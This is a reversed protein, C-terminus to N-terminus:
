ERFAESVIKVRAILKESKGPLNMAHLLRNWLQLEKFDSRYLIMNAKGFEDNWDFVRAEISEFEIKKLGEPRKLDGVTVIQWKSPKKFDKEKLTFTM